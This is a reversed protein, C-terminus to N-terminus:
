GVTVGIRGGGEVFPEGDHGADPDEAEPTDDDLAELVAAVRHKQVGGMTGRRTLGWDGYCRDM